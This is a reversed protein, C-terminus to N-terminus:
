RCAALGGKPKEALVAYRVTADGSESRCTMLGIREVGDSNDHIAGLFIATEVSASDRTTSNLISEMSPKLSLWNLVKKWKENLKTSLGFKEYSCTLNVRVRNVVEAREYPCVMTRLASISNGSPAEKHFHAGILDFGVRGSQLDISAMNLANFHPDSEACSSNATTSNFIVMAGFHPRYTGDVRDFSTFRGGWVASESAVVDSARCHYRHGSVTPINWELIQLTKDRISELNSPTTKDAAHVLTSSFLSMLVVAQSFAGMNKM